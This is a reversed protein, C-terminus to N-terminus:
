RIIKLVLPKGLEKCKNIVYETGRSNGDWIALVVDALAVIEDNRKLPAARGYRKYDPRIVTIKINHRKAFAEACKDIGKAGGSIIEDTGQPLYDELINISLNRSGIVATKM